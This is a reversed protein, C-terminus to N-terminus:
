ARIAPDFKQAIFRVFFYIPALFVLTYACSGLIRLLILYLHDYGWILYYFFFDWIQCCLCVIGCFLFANALHVRMFYMSLLTVCVCCILLAMGFFGFLKGAAIDWLFGTCLGFIGSGIENEFLSICVALPILFVPKVGLISFSAPMTQLCFCALLLLAYISWKMVQRTSKRLAM